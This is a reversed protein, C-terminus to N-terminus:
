LAEITAIKKEWRRLIKYNIYVCKQGYFIDSEKRELM